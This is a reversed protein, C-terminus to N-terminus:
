PEYGGAESAEVEPHAEQEAERVVNAALARLVVKMQFITLDPHKGLTKAVVGAIHPTAFSNGTATLWGGNAWAVRVDIGYAGFEVPPKPNYYFLYPDAVDHSAVSFVSAYTAPYSAGPMNDASAVLMVNGFYARDALEHLVGFFDKKSTSLSLNCVHMGNEIAWRLGAAFVVGRGSLRPGLVRVSYIECEPALARIIGACANGHGYVDEHPETDYILGDPGESIAVYGNVGGVAPHNADVGSDIVAVKVGKGISGGWAWQPDVDDIPRVPKLTQLADPAFASSWAPRWPRM